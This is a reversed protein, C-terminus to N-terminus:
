SDLRVREAVYRVPRESGPDGGEQGKDWKGVRLWQSTPGCGRLLPPCAVDWHWGELRELTTMSLSPRAACVYKVIDSITGVLYISLFSDAVHHILRSYNGLENLTRRVHSRNITTSRQIRIQTNEASKREEWGGGHLERERSTDCKARSSNINAAKIHGAEVLM